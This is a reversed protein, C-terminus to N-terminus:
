SLITLLYWKYLKEVGEQIEVKHKWGMAHIKSVYCLKRMTGNPKSSNFIIEGDYNIIKAVLAALNTISIEKGTGINIHSKVDSYNINELHFNDNPGYQLNFSECM